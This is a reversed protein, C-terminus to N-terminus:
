ANQAELIRDYFGHLKRAMAKCSLEEEVRTLGERRLREGTKDDFLVLSLADALLASDGEPVILGAPGIVEPIAGSDSGVVPVGCAMAESIVRGYQEKWKKLTLSTLCLVNLANLIKVLQATEVADQVHIRGALSSRISLSELEEKMPGSGVVLLHVSEPLRRIADILVKLGKDPSLRGIFGVLHDFNLGLEKKLSQKDMPRFIETPVGWFVRELPLRKPFGVERLNKLCESNAALGGSIQSWTWRWKLSSHLRFHLPLNDFGYFLIKAKACVTLREWVVQFLYGSYAEDLVHIVDPEVTKMAARLAKRQFGRQYNTPDRLPVSFTRYTETKESAICRLWGTPDYVRDVKLREPAIVSLTISDISALENFISRANLSAGAHYIILVKV